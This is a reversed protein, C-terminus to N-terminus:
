QSSLRRADPLAHSSRGGVGDCADLYPTDFSAGAEDFRRRVWGLRRSTDLRPDEDFADVLGAAILGCRHFGFSLHNNPDEAFAFGKGLRLTLAPTEDNLADAMTEHIRIVLHTAEDRDRRQVALVGTDCRDFGSPDDVIKFRFALGADNLRLTVCRMLDAAGEPRVHFYYRDLLQPRPATLSTNSLAMYYGPSIMADKGWRVAVSAGVALGRLPVEARLDQPAVWLRLGNREVVFRGQERGVYSWGGDFCGSGQNANTLEGILRRRSTPPPSSRPRPVGMTFFDDYLRRSIEQILARRRNAESGARTVPNAMEVSEGLWTFNTYSAIALVDVAPAIANM